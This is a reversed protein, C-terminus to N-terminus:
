AVIMSRVLAHSPDDVRSERLSDRHIHGLAANGIVDREVGNRRGLIRATTLTPAAGKVIFPSKSGVEAALSLTAPRRAESSGLSAM